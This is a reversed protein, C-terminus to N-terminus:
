VPSPTPAVLSNRASEQYMIACELSLVVDRMSPRDIGNQRVCAVATGAFESFCEASIQDKVNSDVINELTGERYCRTAWAAGAALNRQEEPVEPSIPPRGCLVEILTVGFSYVDSKVSLIRSGLLRHQRSRCHQRLLLGRRIPM